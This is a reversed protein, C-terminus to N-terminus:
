GEPTITPTAEMEAGGDEPTPTTASPNDINSQCIEIMYEANYVADEDDPVTQLM